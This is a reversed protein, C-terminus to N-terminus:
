IRTILSKMTEIEGRLLGIDRLSNRLSINEEKLANIQVQQEQIGKVLQPTIKGYGVMWPNTTEEDGGAHVASPFITCLQQAIYGTHKNTRDDKYNYDSVQIKM